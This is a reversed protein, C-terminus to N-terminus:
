ILHEYLVRIMEEIQARFHYYEKDSLIKVNEGCTIKVKLPKLFHLEHDVNITGVPLPFPSDIEIEKLYESYLQEPILYFGNGTYERIFGHIKETSFKAKVALQMERVRDEYYKGQGEYRAAFAAIERKYGKETLEEQFHEVSYGMEFFYKEIAERKKVCEEIDLSVNQFHAEEEENDNRYASTGILYEKRIGWMDALLELQDKSFKRAGSYMKSVQTRDSYGLIDAMEQTTIKRKQAEEKVRKGVTVDNQM